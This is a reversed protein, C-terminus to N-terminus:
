LTGIKTKINIDLNLVSKDIFTQNNLSIWHSSAKFKDGVKVSTSSSCLVARRMMPKIFYSKMAQETTSIYIIM